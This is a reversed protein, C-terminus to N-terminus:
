LRNIHLRSEPEKEGENRMCFADLHIFMTVNHGCSETCVSKFFFFLIFFSGSINKDIRQELSYEPNILHCTVQFLFLLSNILYLFFHCNILLLREFCNKLFHWLNESHLRELTFSKLAKRQKM